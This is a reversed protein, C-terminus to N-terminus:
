GAAARGQNATFKQLEARVENLEARLMANERELRRIETENDSAPVKSGDNLIEVGAMGSDRWVLRVRHMTGKRPVHLDFEDPISLKESVALRMGSASIEKIICDVTSNGGDYVIRAGIFSKQRVEIRNERM